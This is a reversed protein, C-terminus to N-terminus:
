LVTTGIVSILVHRAKFVLRSSCLHSCDNDDTTSHLTKVEGTLGKLCLLVVKLAPDPWQLPLVAGRVTLRGLSPVSFSSFYFIISLSLPSGYALLHCCCNSIKYTFTISSPLQFWTEWTRRPLLAMEDRLAGGTRLAALCFQWLPACLAALPDEYLCADISDPCPWWWSWSQKPAGLFVQRVLEGTGWLM